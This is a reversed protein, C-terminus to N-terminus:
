RRYRLAQGSGIGTHMGDKLAIRGNVIVMNIGDPERKPHDYTARDIILAPDFIVLDAFFGTKIQGRNKM